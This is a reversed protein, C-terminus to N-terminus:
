AYATVQIALGPLTEVEAATIARPTNSATTRM